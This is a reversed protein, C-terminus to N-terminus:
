ISEVFEKTTKFSVILTECGYFEPQKIRCLIEKIKTESSVFKM